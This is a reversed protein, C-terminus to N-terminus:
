IYRLLHDNVKVMGEPPDGGEFIIKVKAPTSSSKFGWGKMEVFMEPEGSEEPDHKETKSPVSIIRTEFEFSVEKVKISSMPVLTILPVEVTEAENSELNRNPVAVKVTKAILADGSPSAEFYHEFISAHQADVQERVQTVASQLGKILHSLELKM